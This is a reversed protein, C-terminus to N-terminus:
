FSCNTLIYGCMNWRCGPIQAQCERQVLPPASILRRGASFMSSDCLTAKFAAAPWFIAVCAGDVALFKHWALNLMGSEKLKKTPRSSCQQYLTRNFLWACYQRPNSDGPHCPTNRASDVELASERVTDRCSGHAIAQMLMQTCTSLGWCQDLQVKVANDM